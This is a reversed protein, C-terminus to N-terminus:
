IKSQIQMKKAEFMEIARKVMPEDQIKNSDIERTSSDAPECNTVCSASGGIEASEIMSSAQPQYQNNQQINQPKIDPKDEIIAKTCAIHKIATSFGFIERVLQKIVSFGHKLTTKCAENACSEWTLTENEYSVFYVSKSFCEGLEYNRDNISAVLKDFMSNPMISVKEESVAKPQQAQPTEATLPISIKIKPATPNQALNTDQKPSSFNVAPRQIEQQMSEIM